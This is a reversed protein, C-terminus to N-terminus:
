ITPHKRAITRNHSRAAPVPDRVSLVEYKITFFSRLHAFLTTPERNEASDADDAILRRELVTYLTHMVMSYPLAAM